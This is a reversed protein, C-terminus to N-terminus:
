YFHTTKFMFCLSVNNLLLYSWVAANDCAYIKHLFFAVSFLYITVMVNLYQLFEYCLDVDATSAEKM